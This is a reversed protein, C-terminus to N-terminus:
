QLAEMDHSPSVAALELKQVYDRLPKDGDNLALSRQLIAVGKGRDGMEVLSTGLGKLLNADVPNYRLGRRCARAADAYREHKYLLHCLDSHANGFSPSIELAKTYWEVAQDTFGRRQYSIGIGLALQAWPYIALARRFQPVAYEDAYQEQLAIGFNYHSKASEPATEVMSRYLTANDKWDWNRVWTRAGFAAVIICLVGAAVTRYQPNRLLRDFVYAVLLVWGVSPLYLLREAKITGIPIILNSTVVLAVLPFAAAFRIPAHRHRIAVTISAIVLVTGLLFRVDAWRSIVPVQNYSYDASLIFPVNLLGFYDWLVGLASRVRVGWPVFALVNNLPTVPIPPEVATVVYCRLVLFVAACLAYPVWDLNRLEYWLGRWIPDSRRAIRYLMVLPLVMLASEKSMLALSFAAVSLLQLGLQKWWSDPVDIPDATLIALLGFLAALVEARGVLSTVAETHIPHLAFLAAALAAIRAVGFLQLALLFVLVTVVAHLIINVAHFPAPSGPILAHNLAFTFITLPRFLDGPPLPSALVRIPDVGETVLPNNVIYLGDDFTFGARLANLYVVMALFALLIAVRISTHAEPEM